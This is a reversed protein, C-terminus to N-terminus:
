VLFVSLWTGFLSGLTSGLTYGLFSYLTDDNTAIKKIVFYNISAFTIDTIAIMFYNKNVVAIFSVCVITYLVFQSVFLILFNKM